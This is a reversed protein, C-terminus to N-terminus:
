RGFGKLHTKNTGLDPKGSAFRGIGAIRRPADKTHCADLLRIGERVVESPTWGLRRVLRQLRRQSERDLRAQVLQAM